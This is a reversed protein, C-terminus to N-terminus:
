HQLLPGFFFLPEYFLQNPTVIHEPKADYCKVIIEVSVDSIWLILYISLTQLATDYGRLVDFMIKKKM